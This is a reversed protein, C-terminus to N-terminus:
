VVKQENIEQGHVALQEVRRLVAVHGSQGRQEVFM